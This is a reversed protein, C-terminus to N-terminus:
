RAGAAALKVAQARHTKVGMRDLLDVFSVLEQTPEFKQAHPAPTAQFAAAIQEYRSGPHWFIWDNLGTQYVAQIQETAQQPGYEFNHDVWPASFAQLWPIVRATRAVGADHLRRIRLEGAGISKYVTEHPMRNPHPVNPLHTPLFHSPYVMPLVHDAATVIAEWQQGINIDDADAPSLGFVDAAVPVGLPHIRKRAENLFAVIADSREGKAGPHIQPPLSPFPEPFRIYDFQVEDFGARVAEEAIDINYRWVNPDWASVWTNGKKDMWLGGGPRRISWEPKAKSLIPDKFVVIRAIAYLKHAHLTDAFATLDHLTNESPTTLQKALPIQSDYHPGREDKVDVVFTNIETRDALDLLQHLRRRSGAAYANLYIGRIVDPAHGVTEGSGARPESAPAAPAAAAPKGAPPSTASDSSAGAPSQAESSGCATLFALAVLLPASRLTTSAKM